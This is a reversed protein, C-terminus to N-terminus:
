AIRTYIPTFKGKRQMELKEMENLYVNIAHRILEGKNRFGWQKLVQTIREDLIAPLALHIRSM